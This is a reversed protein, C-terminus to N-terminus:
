ISKDLKNVMRRDEMVMMRLCEWKRLNSANTPDLRYNALTGKTSTTKVRDKHLLLENLAIM